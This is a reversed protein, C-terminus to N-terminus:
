QIIEEVRTKAKMANKKAMLRDQFYVVGAKGMNGRLFVMIQM